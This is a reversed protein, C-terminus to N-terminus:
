VSGRHFVAVLATQAILRVDFALSQNRIYALDMRMWQDFKVHRGGHVQWTCTIGPLVTLRARQWPECALSEHVPLPRPGVLSMQGLLVNILQPLEDVCSKRLYHGVKTIRPDNELKFAPGDQESQSRLDAQADEANSVMTRFKLIRFPKGNKGERKQVFFVPGQSTTKIAIATFLLLPSLLVLGATAGVIDVLRKSWPTPYSQILNSRREAIRLQETSVDFTVVESDFIKSQYSFAQNVTNPEFNEMSQNVTLSGFSFELPDQNQDDTSDHERSAAMLEDNWPYISVETDVRLGEQLAINTLSNAVTLSGDRDTEPLLFALNGEYLGISDTIRLRKRFVSLLQPSPKGNQGADAPIMQILGFERGSTRRHARHVEKLVENRFQDEDLFRNPLAIPYGTSGKVLRATGSKVTKWHHTKM